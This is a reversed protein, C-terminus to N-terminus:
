KWGYRGHPVWIKLPTSVALCNVKRPPPLSMKAQIKAMTMKNKGLQWTLPELNQCLHLDKVKRKKRKKRKKRTKRREEKHWSTTVAGFPSPVALALLEDRVGSATPCAHVRVCALIHSYIGSYIFIQSIHSLIGSLIGSPRSHWQTPVVRLFYITKKPASSTGLAVSRPTIIHCHEALFMGASENGGRSEAFFMTQDACCSLKRISCQRMFSTANQRLNCGKCHKQAQFADFQWHLKKRQWCECSQWLKAQKWLCLSQVLNGVGNNAASTNLVHVM